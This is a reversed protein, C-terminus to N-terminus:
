LKIVRQTAPQSLVINIARLANISDAIPMIASETKGRGIADMVAIAEFQLGNGDFNYEEVTRGPVPLRDLIRGITGRPGSLPSFLAQRSLGQYITLEKAELFPANVRITGTTGEIVFHNKGDRDFGCSLEAKAQDYHLVIESSMDIGNPAAYWLGSVKQPQGLFFMALSVCYVGLDLSAGGGLSRSFFRTKPDYPHEYALEATIRRIAGIEGADVKAKAAAIAPLFRTWMAEMAFVNARTAEREIVSAETHSPALPKGTLIAKGSRIAKLAQALHMSNPTAIYVADIESDAVFADLDSYARKSGFNEHFRKANAATRSYNGVLLAGPVLALDAAFQGAHRGSGLIGWGFSTAKAAKDGTDIM